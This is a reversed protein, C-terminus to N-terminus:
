MEQRTGSGAQFHDLLPKGNKMVIRNMTATIGHAWRPVSVYYDGQQDVKIGAPMARKWYQNAEFQQNMSRDPFNWYLHNWHFIM